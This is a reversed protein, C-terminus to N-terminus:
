IEDRKARSDETTKNDIGFETRKSRNITYFIFSQLSIESGALFM